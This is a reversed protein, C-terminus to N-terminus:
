ALAGATFVNLFGHAHTGLGADFHRFPHHLGATFKLPVRTLSCATVVFSVDEVPPVASAQLGGTRLKFGLRRQPDEILAGLLFGFRTVWDPGPNIELFTSVPPLGAQDLIAAAGGSATRLDKAKDPHLLDDPLRLELVEMAAREGWEHRFALIAELDDALGQLFERTTGGGRGLVSLRLPAEPSAVEDRFPHLEALRAAPIVFRGLMWADPEARYRAYNRVAQDLPLKAPPFLGAYDIVGALLARLSASM